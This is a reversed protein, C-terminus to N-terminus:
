QFRGRHIARYERAQCRMELRDSEGFLAHTGEAAARRGCIRPRKRGVILARVSRRQRDDGFQEAETHRDLPTKRFGREAREVDGVELMKADGLHGVAQQM